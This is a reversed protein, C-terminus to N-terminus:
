CYRNRDETTKEQPKLFHDAGQTDCPVLLVEGAGSASLGQCAFLKHLLVPLWVTLIVKVFREGRLATVALLRDLLLHDARQVLVPM